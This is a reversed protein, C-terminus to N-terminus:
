VKWGEPILEPHMEVVCFIDCYARQDGKPLGENELKTGCNPCNTPIHAMVM